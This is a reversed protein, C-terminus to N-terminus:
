RQLPHSTKQKMRERIVQHLLRVATCIFSATPIPIQTAEFIIDPIRNTVTVFLM